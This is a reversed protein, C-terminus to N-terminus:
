MFGAAKVVEKAKEENADSVLIVPGSCGMGSEAYIGEKWLAKVAEELDLVDIGSLSATVVEKAPAKVEEVATAKPQLSERVEELGAAKAEAYEKKAVELVNGKAVQYCYRLANAIVPAGSARSVINIVRDYGDGISPGYGYGSTEYNGGSQSAGFLKMLINGTLTDCVVVDASGMILDNGRLIVGGDSRASEAFNIDYGKEFLQRLAREVANAGDVNLIGVTPHSIGCAKAAAIGNIANLVMAENRVTATTGTTTAIFIEKGFAPAIVRGVTSVGIPFPHHLTVAGQITGDEILADLKDTVDKECTAEYFEFDDTFDQKEGILVLDFLHENRIIRAAEKMVEFGNESGNITLGIKIRRGMEGTELATAIDEFVEKITAKVQDSM